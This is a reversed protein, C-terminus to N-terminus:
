LIFEREIDIPVRPMFVEQALVCGLKIYFNQSEIAPHTSIYLKKANTTKAKNVILNFLIKGIGQGKYNSNTYLHKLEIYDNNKGIKKNDLVGFGVLNADEDFVGFAWGGRKLIERIDAIKEMKKHNNWTKVSVEDIIQITYPPTLKDKIYIKTIEQYRNFTNLFNDNIDNINLERHM